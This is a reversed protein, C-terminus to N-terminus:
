KKTETTEESYVTQLKSALSVDSGEFENVPTLSYSNSLNAFEIHRNKQENVNPLDFTFLADKVLYAEAKM